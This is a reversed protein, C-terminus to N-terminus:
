VGLSGMVGDGHPSTVADIEGSFGDEETSLAAVMQGDPLAHHRFHTTTSISSSVRVGPDDQMM